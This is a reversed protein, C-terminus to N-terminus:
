TVTIKVHYEGYISYPSDTIELTNLTYKSIVNPKVENEVFQQLTRKIEDRYERQEFHKVYLTTLLQLINML